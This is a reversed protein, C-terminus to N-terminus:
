LSSRRVVTYPKGIDSLRVKLGIFSKLLLMQKHRNARPELLHHKASRKWRAFHFKMKFLKVLKNEVTNAVLSKFGKQKLRLWRHTSVVIEAKWRTEVMLGFAEDKGRAFIRDLRSLRDGIERRKTRLTKLCYFAKALLSSDYYGIAISEIRLGKSVVAQQKWHRWLDAALAVDAVKRRHLAVEVYESYIVKLYALKLTMRSFATFVYAKRKHALKLRYADIRESEMDTNRALCKMSKYLLRSNNAKNGVAEQRLAVFFSRGAKLLRNRTALQLKQSPTLLHREYFTLSNIEGCISQVLRKFVLNVTEIANYTQMGDLHGILRDM